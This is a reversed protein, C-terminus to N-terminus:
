ALFTSGITGARMIQSGPPLPWYCREIWSPTMLDRRPQIYQYGPFVPLGKTREPTPGSIRSGSVSELRGEVQVANNFLSILPTGEEIIDLRGFFKCKAQLKRKAPNIICM